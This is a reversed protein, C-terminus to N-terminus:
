GVMISCKPFKRRKRIEEMLENEMEKGDNYLSDANGSLDGVPLSTSSYKGRITGIVQMCKAKCFKLLWHLEYDDISDLNTTHNVAMNFLFHSPHLPLPNIRIINPQILEACAKLGFMRSVYDYSALEAIFDAMVTPQRAAYMAIPNRMLVTLPIGLTILYNMDVAVDIVANIKDYESFTYDSLTPYVYQIVEVARPSYTNLTDAARKIMIKLQEDTVEVNVRPFGLESFVRSKIENFDELELDLKSLNSFMGM